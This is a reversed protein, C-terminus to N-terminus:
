GYIMVLYACFNDLMNINHAMFNSWAMWIIFQYKINKSLKIQRKAYSDYLILAPTSHYCIVATNDTNDTGLQLQVTIETIQRVVIM